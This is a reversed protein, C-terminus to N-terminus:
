RHNKGRNKEKRAFYDRRHRQARDIESSPWGGLGSQAGPKQFGSTLIWKGGDMFCPFRIEVKRVEHKFAYLGDMEPGFRKPSVQGHNAMLQFLFVFRAKANAEPKDKSKERISEIENLFDLAPCNGNALVACEM